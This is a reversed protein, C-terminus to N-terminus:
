FALTIDQDTAAAIFDLTEHYFSLALRAKKRIELNRGGFFSHKAKIEERPFFVSVSFSNRAEKRHFFTRNESSERM